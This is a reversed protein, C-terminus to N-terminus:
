GRAKAYEQYRNQYSAVVSQKVRDDAKAREMAAEWHQSGDPASSALDALTTELKGMEDQPKGRNKETLSLLVEIERRVCGYRNAALRHRHSLDACNFFTPILSLSASIIATAGVIIKWFDNPERGISAFACLAVVTMLMAPPIPLLFHVKSFYRAAAHHMYQNDRSRRIWKKLTEECRAWESHHQAAEEEM